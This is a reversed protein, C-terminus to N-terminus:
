PDLSNCSCREKGKARNMVTIFILGDSFADYREPNMSESIKFDSAM